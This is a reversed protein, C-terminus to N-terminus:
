CRRLTVSHLMGGGREKSKKGGNHDGRGKEGVGKRGGGGCLVMGIM